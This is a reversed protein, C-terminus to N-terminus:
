DAHELVPRNRTRLLSFVVPVFLLTTATALILGGIVARGLPANQEGGEGLGLSMPLMGIVMALATMLVPRLRTRGAELAAALAELGEQRKENAFTVLLISNATAVGIAMIAGMLSPVSFTTRWLFLMWVIGVLAGPLATIIIFPDLWSQFNVVMLLYVLVAAFAIGFGLRVFASQMSEVQGRMAISNGPALQGRYTALVREIDRAVSGLDRGQVNAYVDYVPQVNYHNVVEAAVGREIKSINELLQVNKASANRLPMSNIASVSDIRHTPTRTEVLYSIGNNPNVWYNPLVQGSGSLSVLVSEAVNQQTLGFQLARAQDVEIHLKPVNVVQHLHADVVGPIKKVDDAIKLAIELNKQRDIGGVQIDIPAPIGFNLIQSVIDASQFYFTMEPFKRPLERRLQAVYAPTPKSRRHSLAVLIEGDASGTTSSDGFALSYSRNPLGINDIVLEIDDAPLIRRIEAEVASFARETEELRTGAPTRVHLRFQGADVSPFFDQGVFPMLALGSVVVLGFTAFVARRHKLNWDLIQAYADRFREFGREFQQGIRGFFGPTRQTEHGHAAVEAPLLYNVMVPVLTRSLLYSAAMAFVVALALPTFLYQAPGDLFLVSVFVICITLTSVFTPGAIQMAGDLIAQRLSKGMGLNRHINEIEVTADDVLIGVALALGGLTMVNLSYGLAFLIVISTMISLPISVAVILTSRWSGLFLLIMAATLLGAIVSEVVVGEVAAKVFLSQDFLLEIDLGAPASAKIDPLMAKLQSVIELTSANGNKLIALLAGRKGDRRVLTTQTTFGDRVQAVDKMYITAGGVVKIPINNFADATAPTNNLSVTYEQGGIRAVGTPFALNNANVADAVDKPTIGKSQLAQTDLDVMIQREKGGYPAPLTLGQITSLQTRLRWLGYDYVDSESLTESSLSIQVIPVSSANFRLIIPPQVSPPMIQRIAQAVSTVQSVAVGVNAGQHFFVKIVAVGNLTQSEIKKVDSVNGSLAYESFTTIRREFEEADMGKYTWITTVVPIDIEPFIDTRMRTVSTIGLVLILIAMVVFTYPRRLALQVIWM